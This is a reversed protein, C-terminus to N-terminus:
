RWQRVLSPPIDFQVLITKIRFNPFRQTMLSSLCVDQWTIKVAVVRLCTFHYIQSYMPPNDTSCTLLVRISLWFLHVIPYFSLCSGLMKQPMGGNRLLPSALSMLDKQYVKARYNWVSWSAIMEETKIKLLKIIKMKNKKIGMSQLLTILKKLMSNLILAFLCRSVILHVPLM